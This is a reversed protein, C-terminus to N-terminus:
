VLRVWLRCGPFVRPVVLALLLLATALVLPLETMIAMRM